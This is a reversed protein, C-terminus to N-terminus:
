YTLKTALSLLGFGYSKGSGIGDKIAKQFLDSNTIELEGSFIVSGFTLPKTLKWGKVKQEPMVQLNLIDDKSVKLSLLKFGLGEAKRKLWAVQEQETQFEVRKGKQRINNEYVVIRQTPNARLHFFLKRGIRLNNASYTEEVSKCAPNELSTEALYSDPLRKWDPEVASQVLLVIKNTKKEVDIRYLVGFQARAGEQKTDTQPFASLVTRHLDQCNGLDRRVKHSYPNLILRSLYM